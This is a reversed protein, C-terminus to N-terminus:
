RSISPGGHEQRDAAVPARARACLGVHRRGAAPMSPAVGTRLLSGQAVCGCRGRFGISAGVPVAPFAVGPFGVSRRRRDRRSGQRQHAQLPLPARGRCRSRGIRRTSRPTSRQWPARVVGPQARTSSRMRRRPVTPAVRATVKRCSRARVPCKGDCIRWRIRPLIYPRPALAARTPRFSRRACRAGSIRASSHCWPLRKACSALCLPRCGPAATGSKALSRMFRLSCRWLWATSFFFMPLVASWTKSRVRGRGVAVGSRM